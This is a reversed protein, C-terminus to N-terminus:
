REQISEWVPGPLRIIHTLADCLETWFRFADKHYSFDMLKLLTESKAKSNGNHLFHASVWYLLKLAKNM